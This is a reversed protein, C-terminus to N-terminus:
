FLYLGSLVLLLHQNNFLRFLLSFWDGRLNLLKFEETPQQKSQMHKNVSVFLADYLSYFIVIERLSSVTTFTLRDDVFVRHWRSKDIFSHDSTTATSVQARIGAAVDKFGKEKFLHHNYAQLRYSCTECPVNNENSKHQGQQKLVQLM